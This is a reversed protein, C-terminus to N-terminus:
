RLGAEHQEGANTWTVTTGHLELSRPAIGGGSDLLRAGRSDIRHVEYRAPLEMDGKYPRYAGVWAVAGYRKLVLAVTVLEEADPSAETPGTYSRSSHVTAGTRLDVARVRDGQNRFDDYDGLAYAVFPGAIRFHSAYSNLGVDDRGLSYARQKSFLCGFARIEYGRDNSGARVRRQFVRVHGSSAITASHPPTCGSRFHRAADSTSAAVPAIVLTALLAPVARQGM